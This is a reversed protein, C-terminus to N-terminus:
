PGADPHPGQGINAGRSIDGATLPVAVIRNTFWSSDPVEDITNINGARVGPTVDGPKMLLNVLLDSFLEIRSEVARSADQTEPERQLPDDPFFKPAAAHSSAVALAAATTTAIFWAQARM